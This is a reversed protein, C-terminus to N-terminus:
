RTDSEFAIARAVGRLEAAALLSADSERAREGHASLDEQEVLGETGGIGFHALGQAFPEALKVVLGFDGSEKDGVILIFGEFEGVVNDHKM